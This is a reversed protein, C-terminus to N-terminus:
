AVVYPPTVPEAPPDQVPVPAPEDPPTPPVDVPDAPKGPEGPQTPESEPNDTVHQREEEQRERVRQFDSGDPRNREFCAIAVAPTAILCQAM